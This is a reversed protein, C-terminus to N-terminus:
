VAILVAAILNNLAHLVITVTTSGSRQRIWGFILGMLFICLMGLWNYQQHLAAWLASTLVITGPVGLWSLAWGRHLFGRFFLEETIPAVVVTALWLTPLMGALRAARYSADVSKSGGDIGLLSEMSAATAILATLCAIGLVLDRLPLMNLAFYSRLTSNRSKAAIVVVTLAVLSAMMGAMNAFAPDQPSPVQLQHTLMWLAMFVVISFFAATIAFIGWGLSGWFGWPRLEAACALAPTYPLSFTPVLTMAPFRSHHSPGGEGDPV